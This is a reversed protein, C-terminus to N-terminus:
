RGRDALVVADANGLVIAAHSIILTDKNSNAPQISSGACHAGEPLSAASSRTGNPAPIRSM